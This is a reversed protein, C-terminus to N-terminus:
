VHELCVHNISVVRRQMFKTQKQFRRVPVTGGSHLAISTQKYQEFLIEFPSGHVMM